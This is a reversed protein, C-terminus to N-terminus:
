YIILKVIESQSVERFHNDLGKKKSLLKIEPFDNDAHGGEAACTNLFKILKTSGYKKRFESVNFNRFLVLQIFSHLLSSM